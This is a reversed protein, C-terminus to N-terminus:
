LLVPAAHHGVMHWGDVSHVFLNLATAAGAQGGSLLNETLTIWAVPGHRTLCEDTVIVQPNGGNAFIAQWSAGVRDWGRLPQRGPHACLVDDSHAWLAVMATLDGRELAEYFRSNAELAGQDTPVHETPTSM